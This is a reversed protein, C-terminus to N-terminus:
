VPPIYSRAANMWGRMAQDLSLYIIKVLVDGDELPATEEMTIQWDSEKPLGQPRAALRIQTNQM